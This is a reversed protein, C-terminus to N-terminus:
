SLARVKEKGRERAVLAMEKPPREVDLAATMPFMGYKLPTLVNALTAVVVRAREPNGALMGEVRPLRTPPDLVM